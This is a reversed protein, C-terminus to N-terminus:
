IKYNIRKLKIAAQVQENWWWTKKGLIGIGKSEGLVKKAINKICKTVMDWMLSSDSDINMTMDKVLKGKFLELKEGKLNWSKIKSNIIKRKTRVKIKIRIDTVMIRHHSTLSEGPIVKCDKCAIKDM